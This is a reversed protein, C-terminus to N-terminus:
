IPYLNLFFLGSYNNFNIYSYNKELLNPKLLRKSVSNGFPRNDLTAGSSYVAVIPRILETSLFVNGTFAFHNNQPHTQQQQVKPHENHGTTHKLM